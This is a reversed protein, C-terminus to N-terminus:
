QGTGYNFVTSTFVSASAYSNTFGAIFKVGSNMNFTYELKQDSSGDYETYSLVDDATSVAIKKGKLSVSHLLYQGTGYNFITSNVVETLDTYGNTFAARFNVGSKM